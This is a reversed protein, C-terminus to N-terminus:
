PNIALVWTFVILLGKLRLIPLLFNISFQFGGLFLSYASPFQLLDPYSFYPIRWFDTKYMM